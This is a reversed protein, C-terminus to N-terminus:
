GILELYNCGDCRPPFSNIRSVLEAVRQANDNAIEGNEMLLNNEFGIRCDSGNAAAHLLCYTERAGFACTM